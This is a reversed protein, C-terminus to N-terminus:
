ERNAKYNGQLILQQAIKNKNASQEPGSIVWLINQLTLRLEEYKINMAQMESDKEDRLKQIQDERVRLETLEQQLRQSEDITLENIASIYGRMRENGELLDNETPKFYSNKVGKVSHGELLEIYLTHVGANTMATDYFKRFGHDTMVNYRKRREGEKLTQKIRIGADQLMQGIMKVITDRMIQSAKPMFPSTKDFQERILPSEPTIKEGYLIRYQLYNDIASTCEPTCFCFYEDPTGEYVLIKYLGYKESKVLSKIKLDSLAGVRLGASSQLLIMVKKREDCKELIKRIEDRTYARDKVTRMKIGIFSNIKKWNLVVDNM